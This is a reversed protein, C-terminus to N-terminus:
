RQSRAFRFGAMSERWSTPAGRVHFDSEHILTRRAPNVPRALDDEGTTAGDDGGRHAVALRGAIDVRHGRTAAHAHCQRASDVSPTSPRPGVSESRMSVPALGSAARRAQLQGQAHRSIGDTATLEKSGREQVRTTASVHPPAAIM